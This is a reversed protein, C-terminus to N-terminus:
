LIKWEQLAFKAQLRLLAIGDIYTNKISIYNHPSFQYNYDWFVDEPAIKGRFVFDRSCCNIIVSKSSNINTLDLGTIDGDISRSFQKYPLCMESLIIKTMDAMAGGGLIIAGCFENKENLERLLEKAALYDTNVGRITNEDKILCNIAGIERTKDDLYVQDLYSRKYPATISVGRFKDFLESLKPLQDESNCDILTYKIPQGLIEEYMAQSKSHSIDRGILALSLM